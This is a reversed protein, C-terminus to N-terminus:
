RVVRSRILEAVAVPDEIHPYHGVGFLLTSTGSVSRRISKDTVRPRFDPDMSGEVALVPASIRKPFSRDFVAGEPRFRSRFAWRQYEASLHAVKDEQMAARRASAIQHYRPTDRFGPGTTSRFIKETLTADGQVLRREPIRPLQAALTRRVLRWQSLPHTTVYRYLAVPHASSLTVLGTVRDPWHAAMTWGVMGGFGHGVVLAETYGLGRIVGAMDSAATTLDYGRPTKDSKGYGRLDVAAVHLDDHALQDMLPAFDFSGGGWGHILLVLPANRPGQTEAWLRVGRSHVYTM